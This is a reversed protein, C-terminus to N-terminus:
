GRCYFLICPGLCIFDIERFFLDHTGVLNLVENLRLEGVACYLLRFDKFFNLFCNVVVLADEGLFLM